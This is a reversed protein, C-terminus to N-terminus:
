LTVCSKVTADVKVNNRVYPEPDAYKLESVQISYAFISPSLLRCKTGQLCLTFPTSCHPINSKTLKTHYPLALEDPEKVMGSM